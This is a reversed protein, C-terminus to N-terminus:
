APPRFADIVGAVDRPDAGLSRQGLVILHEGADIELTRAALGLHGRSDVRVTEIEDWTLSARTGPSHIRVGTALVTLRPNWILDGACVALLVLAALGYLLRGPRDSTTWWLVVFALWVVGMAAAFARNPGYRVTPARDSPGPDSPRPDSSGADSPGPDPPTPDPAGGPLNDM